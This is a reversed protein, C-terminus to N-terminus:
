SNRETMQRGWWCGRSFAFCVDATESYFVSNNLSSSLLGGGEYTYLTCMSYVNHPRGRPWICELRISSKRRPFFVVEFRLDGLRLESDLLTKLSTRNGVSVWSIFLNYVVQIIINLAYNITERKEWYRNHWLINNQAYDYWYRKLTYMYRITIRGVTV